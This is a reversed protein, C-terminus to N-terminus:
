TNGETQMPISQAPVNIQIGPAGPLCLRLVPGAGIVALRRDRGCERWSLSLAM